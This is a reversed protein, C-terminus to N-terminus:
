CAPSPYCMKPLTAQIPTPRSAGLSFRSRTLMDAPAGENLSRKPAAERRRCHRRSFTQRQKGRAAVPSHKLRTQGQNSYHEMSIANLVNGKLQIRQENLQNASSALNHYFAFPPGLEGRTRKLVITLWIWGCASMQNQNQNKISHPASRARRAGPPALHRM